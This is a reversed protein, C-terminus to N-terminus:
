LSCPMRMRGANFALRLRPIRPVYDPRPRTVVTGLPMSPGVPHLGDGQAWVPRGTHTVWVLNTDHM